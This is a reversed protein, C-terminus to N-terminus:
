PKEESDEPSAAGEVAQSVIVKAHRLVRDKLMYGTEAVHLVTGEPKDASPQQGIAEHLHPDFPTDGSVMPTVGIDKLFSIFQQHIAEMGDRLVEPRTENRSHYQAREFNDIVQLLKKIITEQANEVMRSQDRVLRKRYNDFDAATRLVQAQLDKSKAREKELDERLREVESKPADAPKASASTDPGNGADNDSDDSGTTDEADSEVSNEDQNKKKTM